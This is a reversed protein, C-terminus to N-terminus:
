QVYALYSILSRSYSPTGVPVEEEIRHSLNQTAPLPDKKKPCITFVINKKAIGPNKSPADKLNIRNMRKAPNAVRAGADETLLRQSSYLTPLV